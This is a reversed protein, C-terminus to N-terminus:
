SVVLEVDFAVDGGSASTVLMDDLCVHLQIKYQGGLVNSTRVVLETSQCTGAEINPFYVLKSPIVQAAPTGDPLQAVPSGDANVIEISTLSVGKFEVNSYPNCASLVVLQLDDTEITDNFSDGWHLYFNPEMQFPRANNPNAFLDFEPNNPDNKLHHYKATALDMLSKKAQKEIGECDGSGQGATLAALVDIRGYGMEQNRTGNPFEPRDAYALNGVKAASKEIIERIKMNSLGQNQSKLLAVLGAVHPTASSTGNFNPIYDDGSYGEWGLRDTTPCQVCPAVVSLGTLTGNFYEEGYNAGWWYEGDPSNPTKRNDDTSSGGVCIVLPHRGPYRNNSGYDENGSAAVLVVNNNFANQIEPDIVNYDWGWGDYVGFSMSVVSAGHQTAYNLGIACQVDTWGQFALPMITCGAAVGAVGQNNNMMAAAIGACATGHNGTPSGPPQLTYLNIGQEAFQLDPHYLDVGEDLIAIVVNSVGQQIGWGDPANIQKMDWQNAFWPDNPNVLSCIPKMMPMNEFFVEHGAKTLKARADFANAKAPDNVKLIHFKSLYQSRAEDLTLGNDKAAATLKAAKTAKSVLVVDPQPCFCNSKGDSSYAEYVPGLWEIQGALQKELNSFQADNIPTDDATKLWFRTPTHNVRKWRLAQDQEDPVLALGANQALAAVTNIDMENKFCVVVMSAELNQQAGSTATLSKPFKKM